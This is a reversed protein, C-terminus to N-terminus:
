LVRFVDFPATANDPVSYGSESGFIWLQTDERSPLRSPGLPRVLWRATHM